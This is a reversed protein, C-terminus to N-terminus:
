CPPTGRTAVVAVVGHSHCFALLSAGFHKGPALTGYLERVLRLKALSKPVFSLYGGAMNFYMQDTAQWIMSQGAAGYPLVVLTEHARFEQRINQPRLLPPTVVKTAPWSAPWWSLVMIAAILSAALARGRSLRALIIAATVAAMLDFYM